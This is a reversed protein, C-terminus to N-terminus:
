DLNVNRKLYEKLEVELDALRKEAEPTIHRVVWAQYQQAQEDSESNLNRIELCKPCRRKLFEEFAAFDEETEPQRIAPQGNADVYAFPDPLPFLYPSGDSNRGPCDPNDCQWAAFGLEGTAEEVTMGRPAGPARFERGEKTFYLTEVSMQDNFIDDRTRPRQRGGCGSAVVMLSLLALAVILHSLPPKM